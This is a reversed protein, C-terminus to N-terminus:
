NGNNVENIFPTKGHEKLMYDNYALASLEETEYHGVVLSRLYKDIGLTVWKKVEPDFRVGLYKSMRIYREGEEIINDLSNNSRDGDYHSLRYDPWRGHYMAYVLTHALIRENDIRVEVYGDNKLAGARQGKESKRYLDKGIVEFVSRIREISVKYRVGDLVDLTDKEDELM